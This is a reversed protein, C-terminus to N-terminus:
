SRPYKSRSVRTSSGSPFGNPGFTNGIYGTCETVWTEPSSGCFSPPLWTVRVRSRRRSLGANIVTSQFKFRGNQKKLERWRKYQEAKAPDPDEYDQLWFRFRDVSRGAIGHARSLVILDVPKKPLSTRRLAAVYVPVHNRGEAKPLLPTTIKDLNFGPSGNLGSSYAM